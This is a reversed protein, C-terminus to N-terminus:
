LGPTMTLVDRLTIRRKRDDVNKVKSVDFYKLIPTNLGAKFDGREIAVGIIVSTVTKSVSQMTHLETGHYYPHWYPDFYNYRGILRANLPGREAAEQGYIKDYDRPYTREFVKKGCRFVAVSDFMQSYKGAALDKDLSLLVQEDLGVSAPTATAWGNTPWPTGEARARAINDGLLLVSSALVTVGAFAVLMHLKKM